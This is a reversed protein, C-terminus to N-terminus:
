EISFDAALAAHDSGAFGGRPDDKYATTSKGVYRTAQPAGIFIHDLASKVGNFIYTAQDDPPLDKAVRVLAGGAELANIAESGPKDNLDGGLLVLADPLDTSTKAIIAQAAKAEALRRAPDDAVQSRFHAAFMVVQREGFTMRIELLERSFTTTGGGALPIRTERHTKIEGLTGRALVAVDVSGPSGTEGLHSITFAKGLSALKATLASLCRDTEVEELSIVDPDILAIGKALKDTQADFVAQSPAEEFDGAACNGSDCLTDFYRHVNFTAVRLVGPRRTAGGDPAPAAADVAADPPLVPGPTPKISEDSCAVAVLAVALLAFLRRM